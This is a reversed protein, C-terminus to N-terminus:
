PGLFGFGDFQIERLVGQIDVDPLAVILQEIEPLDLFVDLGQRSRPGILVVGDPPRHDIEPAPSVFIQALQRRLVEFPFLGDLLPEERFLVEEPM